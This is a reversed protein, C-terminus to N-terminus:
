KRLRVSQVPITAVNVLTFSDLVGHVIRPGNNFADALIQCREFDSDAGVTIHPIFPIDTRRHSRLAGGYLRDHLETIEARGEDPVLFVHGGVGSMVDRAAEARRITFPVRKTLAAVASLEAAIEVASAQFPFVLTFHPGIRIAQPDHASRVEAISRFDFEDLRPFGVIALRTQDM